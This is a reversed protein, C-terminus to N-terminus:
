KFSTIWTQQIKSELGQWHIEIHWLKTSYHTNATQQQPLCCSPLSSPVETEEQRDEATQSDALHLMELSATIDCQLLNSTVAGGQQERGRNPRNCTIAMDAKEPQTYTPQLGCLHLWNQVLFKFNPARNGLDPTLPPHSRQSRGDTTQM